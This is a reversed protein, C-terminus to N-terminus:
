EAPVKRLTYYAEAPFFTSDNPTLNRIRVDYVFGARM